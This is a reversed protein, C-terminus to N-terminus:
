PVTRDILIILGIDQINIHGTGPDGIETDVQQSIFNVPLAGINNISISLWGASILLAQLLM